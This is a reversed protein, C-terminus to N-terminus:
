LASELASGYRGTVILGHRARTLAVNTQQEDTLIGLHVELWRPPPNSIIELKCKSRVTSIIVYDNESGSFAFLEGM